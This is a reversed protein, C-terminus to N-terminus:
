AQHDTQPYFTTILYVQTGVGKQFAKWFHSTFQTGRDSIISLPVGHLRVLERIYLKAYDEASYSTRVPLFYASKTMRDIIVWVSDHQHHTRPLGMMFDMNVEEWKWTPITFEQM